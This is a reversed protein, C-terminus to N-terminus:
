QITNFKHPMAQRHPSCFEKTSIEEDKLFMLPQSERVWKEVSSGRFRSPAAGSVRVDTIGRLKLNEQEQRKIRHQQQTVLQKLMMNENVIKSQTVLQKVLQQQSNASKFLRKHLEDCKQMVKLM